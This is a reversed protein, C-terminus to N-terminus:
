PTRAARRATNRISSASCFGAGSEPNRDSGTRSRTFSPMATAPSVSRTGGDISSTSTKPTDWTPKRAVLSKALAVVIAISGCRSFVCLFCGPAKGGGGGGRRVLEGTIEGIGRMGALALDRDIEERMLGIARRVGDEGAVAAAYLMPRGVF